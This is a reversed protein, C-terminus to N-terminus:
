PCTLQATGVVTCGGGCATIATCAPSNIVYGWVTYNGTAGASCQALGNSTISVDATNSGQLCVGWSATLPTVTEPSTNYHGTATFQVQGNPFTQADATAPMITVSQANRMQSDACAVTIFAAALLFFFPLTPGFPKM